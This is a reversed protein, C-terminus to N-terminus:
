RAYNAQYLQFTLMVNGDSSGKKFLSSNSTSIRKFVLEVRIIYKEGNTVQEGEHLVDHNFVLCTGTKPTVSAVRTKELDDPIFPLQKSQRQHFYTKGGNFKDNLYIILTFISKEDANIELLNDIHPCFKSGAKYKSFKVVHGIAAFCITILM